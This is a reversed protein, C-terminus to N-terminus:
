KVCASCLAMERVIESGKGGPDDIIRGRKDAYRRSRYERTRVSDVRLTPKAGIDTRVGGIVVAESVVVQGCKDCRFSV